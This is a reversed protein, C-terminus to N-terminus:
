SNAEIKQLYMAITNELGLYLSECILAHGISVEEVFPIKKIFFGINNMNLDHGAHLRIGMDEALLSCELYPTIAKERDNSYFKAYNYTHLEISHTGTKAAFEVFKPATDLFISTRIKKQKLTTIVDSLFDFHTITDWGQTSTLADPPDPVLTVQTPRHRTVLSLFDESPYGEINLEVNLIESLNTIDRYTIHRQDPRPHVTIGQAGFRECDKAVKLLDPTNQGRSNRLTAVKNINVSLRVM